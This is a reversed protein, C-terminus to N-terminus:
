RADDADDRQQAAPAEELTAPPVEPPPCAASICTLSREDRIWFVPRPHQRPQCVHASYLGGAKAPFVITGDLRAGKVKTNDWSSGYGKSRASLAVVRSGALLGVRLCEDTRAVGASDSTRGEVISEPAAESSRCEGPVPRGDVSMVRLTWSGFWGAPIVLVAVDARDRTPGDFGLRDVVPSDSFARTGACLFFLKDRPALTRNTLAEGLGAMADYCAGCTAAAGILLGRAISSRWPFPRRTTVERAGRTPRRRPGGRRTATDQASQKRVKDPATLTYAVSLLNKVVKWDVRWDLRVGGLGETRRPPLVAPDEGVLQRQEGPPAKCLLAIRGDGHHDYVYYAFIKKKVKFALHQVGAREAKAEPLGQCLAVLRKRRGASGAFKLSGTM